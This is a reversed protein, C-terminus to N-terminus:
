IAKRGHEITAEAKDLDIINQQAARQQSLLFSRWRGLEIPAAYKLLKFGKCGAIIRGHAASRGARCDRESFDYDAMDDRTMWCDAHVELIAIMRRALEAANDPNGPVKARDKVGAQPRFDLDTQNTM